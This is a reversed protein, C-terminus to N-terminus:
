ILLSPDIGELKTEICCDVPHGGGAGDPHSQSGTTGLTMGVFIIWDGMIFVEPQHAQKIIHFFGIEKEVRVFLDFHFGIKFILDCLFDGLELFVVGFKFICKRLPM